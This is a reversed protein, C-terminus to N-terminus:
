GRGAQTCSGSTCRRRGRSSPFPSVGARPLPIPSDQRRSAGRGRCSRPSSCVQLPERSGTSLVYPSIRGRAHCSALSGGELQSVEIRDRRPRSLGPQIQTLQTGACSATLSRTSNHLSAVETAPLQGSIKAAPAMTPAATPIKLM